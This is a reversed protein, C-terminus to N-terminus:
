FTFRIAVEGQQRAQATTYQGFTDSLANSTFNAGIGALNNRGFLNFVQGIFEVRKRGALTLAKSARVDFRNYTNSNNILTVPALGNALRYANVAKMMADNDRNGMGKTTGPVFDTTAGDNNIDRGARASFPSSSRLTWVMGLTVDGPLLYAGSGVFTHRRDANGYGDDWEPHYFDTVTGTSTAGFSNDTV